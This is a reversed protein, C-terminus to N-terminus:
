IMDSGVKLFLIIISEFEFLAGHSLTLEWCSAIGTREEVGEGWTLKLMEVYKVVLSSFLCSEFVSFGVYHPHNLFGGGTSITFIKDDKPTKYMGTGHIKDVISRHALTTPLYVLGM